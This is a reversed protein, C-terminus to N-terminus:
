IIENKNILRRIEDQYQGQQSAAARNMFPNAPMAGRNGKSSSRRRTGYEVFHRHAGKPRRPVVTMSLGDRGIDRSRISSRLNGTPGVPAKAKAVKVMSKTTKSVIRRLEDRMRINYKNFAVLVSDVGEVKVTIQKGM